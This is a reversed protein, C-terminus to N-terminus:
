YYSLLYYALFSIGIALIILTAIAQHRQLFDPTRQLFLDDWVTSSLFDLNDTSHRLHDVFHAGALVPGLYM